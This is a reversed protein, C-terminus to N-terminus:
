PRSGPFGRPLEAAIQDAIALQHERREGAEVERSAAEAELRRRRSDAEAAARAVEGEDTPVLAGSESIRIGSSRPEMDGVAALHRHGECWWRRVNVPIPVGIENVPLVGCEACTQWPSHAAVYAAAERNAAEFRRQESTEFGLRGRVKDVLSKRENYDLREFFGVVGGVTPMGALLAASLVELAVARGEPDGLTNVLELAKQDLPAEPDVYPIRLKM